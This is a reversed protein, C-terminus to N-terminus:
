NLGNYQESLRFNDGYVLLRNQVNNTYIIGMDVSTIPSSSGRNAQIELIKVGNVYMEAIRQPANWHLTVDYWQDTSIALNVTKYTNGAFITWKNVGDERRIGAWAVDERGVTLRLLYFRDGNDRLIQNGTVSGIINFCASAYANDMHVTKRLFANERGYNTGSTFFRAHYNGDYARYSKVTVTDTRTTSTASWKNLNNFEFNDAFISTPQTSKTPQKPTPTPTTTPTPTPHTTPQPTPSPTNTPTPRPTTTPTPSPTTTPTPTPYTTPQPTPSPTNTPTPKPTTTPTPSSTPMPGTATNTPSDVNTFDLNLQQYRPMNNLNENMWVTNGIGMSACQSLFQNLENVTSTTYASYENYDAGVETNILKIGKSQATQM